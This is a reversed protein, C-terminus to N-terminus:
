IMMLPASTGHSGAEEYASGGSFGPFQSLKSIDFSANHKKKRPRDRIPSKGGTQTSDLWM